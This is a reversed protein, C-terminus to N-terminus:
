PALGPASTTCAGWRAALAAQDALTPTLTLNGPNMISPREGAAVHWLGFAHGLEHAITIARADPDALTANVLVVGAEDQYLGHFAPAAPEFRIEVAPGDLDRGIAVVGHARWLAAAADIATLQAASAGPAELRIPACVDFVVDLEGDGAAGTCGAGAAALSALVTALRM